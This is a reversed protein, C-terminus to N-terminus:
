EASEKTESRLTTVVEGARAGLIARAAAEPVRDYRQGGSYVIIVSPRPRYEFTYHM